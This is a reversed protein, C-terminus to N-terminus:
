PTCDEADEAIFCNEAGRRYYNWLRTSRFVTASRLVVSM